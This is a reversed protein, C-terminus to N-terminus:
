QGAGGVGEPDLEVAVDTPVVADCVESEKPRLTQELKQYGTASVAVETVGTTWLQCVLEPLDTPPPADHDVACVVNIGDDLTKWTTPDGLAFTNVGASWAVELSTDPPVPGAPATITLTFLPQPQSPCGGEGGGGVGGDPDPAAPDECGALMGGVPAAAVAGLVAAAFLFYARGRV